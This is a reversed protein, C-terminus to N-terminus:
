RKKIKKFCLFIKGSYDGEAAEQPIRLSLFIEQQERQNLTVLSPEITLWPQLRSTTSVTVLAPFNSGALFSKKVETGPSVTGFRLMDTDANLGILARSSGSKVTVSANISQREDCSEPWNAQLALLLAIIGILLGGAYLLHAQNTKM